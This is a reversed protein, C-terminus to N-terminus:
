AGVTQLSILTLTIFNLLMHMVICALLSGTRQYLYGIGLSLVFLAVPAPGQSAHMLAFILSTVVIAGVHVPRGNDKKSSPIDIKDRGRSGLFISEPTEGDLPRGIRQIWGQLVGRFLFEEVIPAVIAAGFWLQIVELPQPQNDLSDITPHTYELFQVMLLQVMWVVPIWMAFGMLGGMIGAGNQGAALGFDSASYRYQLCLYWFAFTMVALQAIGSCLGVNTMVDPHNTIEEAPIGTAFVAFTAVSAQAFIWLFGIGMVDLLGWRAVASRDEGPLDIAGSRYKAIVQNWFWFGILSTVGFTTYLIFEQNLLIM